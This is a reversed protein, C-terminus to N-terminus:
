SSKPEPLPPVPPASMPPSFFGAATVSIAEVAAGAAKRTGRGISISGKRGATGAPGGGKEISIMSKAKGGAMVGGAVGGVNNDGQVSRSHPDSRTTDMSRNSRHRPPRSSGGGSGWASPPGIPMVLMEDDIDDEDEGHLLDVDDERHTPSSSGSAVKCEEEPRPPIFHHVAESRDVVEDFIEYYRQICLKIIMGLTTKGETLAAPNSLAPSQTVLSPGPIACMMVARAPNTAAVLNPCIVIALNHADMRNVAARLSVEHMLDIVLVFHFHLLTETIWVFNSCVYSM